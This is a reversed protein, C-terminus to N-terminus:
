HGTILGRQANDVTQTIFVDKALITPERGTKFHSATMICRVYMGASHNHQVNDMIQPLGINLLCSANRIPEVGSKLDISTMVSDHM